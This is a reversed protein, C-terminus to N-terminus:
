KSIWKSKSKENIQTYKNDNKKSQIFNLKVLQM